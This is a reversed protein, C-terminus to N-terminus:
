VDESEFKLLVLVGGFPQSSMGGVELLARKFGSVMLGARIKGADLKAGPEHQSKGCPDEGIM